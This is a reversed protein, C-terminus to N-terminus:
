IKLDLNMGVGPEINKEQNEANIAQLVPKMDTENLYIEGGVASSFKESLIKKAKNEALKDTKEEKISDLREQLEEAKEKAKERTKEILKKANEDAQKRLEKDLKSEIRVHGFHTLNGNADMYWHSTREVVNGMSNYLSGVVSEARQIGQLMQTYEKEAKPDNQMKELLKSNIIVAGIKNDKNTNIGTGITLSLDKVQKQLKQLYEDTSVDSEKSTTAVKTKETVQKKQTAYANEAVTSYTNISSVAMANDEKLSFKMNYMMFIQVM